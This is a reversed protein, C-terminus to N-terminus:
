YLFETNFKTHLVGLSLGLILCYVSTSYSHFHLNGVFSGADDFSVYKPFM